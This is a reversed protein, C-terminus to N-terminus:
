ARSRRWVATFGAMLPHEWMAELHSTFGPVVVLDVRGAGFVQYAVHVEGSRAYRTEPVDIM